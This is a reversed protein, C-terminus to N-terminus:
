RSKGHRALFEDVKASEGPLEFNVIETVGRDADVTYIQRAHHVLTEDGITLADTYNVTVQNDEIAGIEHDYEVGDFLNHAMISSKEYSDLVADPGELIEDKVEYKVDDALTTRATAYDDNDLAVALTKILDRM